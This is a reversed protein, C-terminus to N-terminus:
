AGTSTRNNEENMGGSRENALWGDLDDSRPSDVGLGRLHALANLRKEKLTTENQVFRDESRYPEIMAVPNRSREVIITESKMRVEDIVARFHRRVEMPPLTKM